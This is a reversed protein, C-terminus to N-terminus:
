GHVHKVLVQEVAVVSHVYVTNTKTRLILMVKAIFKVFHLVCELAEVKGMIGRILIIIM